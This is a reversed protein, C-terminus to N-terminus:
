LEIPHVQLINCTVVLADCACIDSHHVVLVQPHAALEGMAGDEADAMLVDVCQAVDTYNGSRPREIHSLGNADHLEVTLKAM